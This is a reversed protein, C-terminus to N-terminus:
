QARSQEALMPTVPARFMGNREHILSVLADRLRSRTQRRAQRQNADLAPAGGSHVVACVLESRHAVTHAALFGWM